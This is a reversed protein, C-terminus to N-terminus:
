QPRYLQLPLKCHEGRAAQVGQLVLMLVLMFMFVLMLILMFVLMLMFVLVGECFTDRSSQSHAILLLMLM